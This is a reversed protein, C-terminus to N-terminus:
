DLVTGGGRRIKALVSSLEEQVLLSLHSARGDLQSSGTSFHIYCGGKVPQIHTIQDINVVSVDKHVQVTIFKSM